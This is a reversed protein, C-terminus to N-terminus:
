PTVTFRLRGILQGSATVVDVRYRGEYPPKLDTKRSYTRFGEKRGGRLPSLPVRGILQGDKWWVHEIPQRLGAPAYVATYAAVGGWGAVTSAPIPSDVPEVPELLTVSRAATAMAVFLPAPPVAARGVWVAAMAVVALVTSRAYAQRWTLAGRERFVPMMAVATLAAAGEVALIPRIGLLPLAVNLAAFISFALLAQNLWRRPHVVVAYWPDVATVLAGAVVGALFLANLSDLTASAYYAPLVFLLLGHYLSQIAYDAASLIRRRGRRELPQRLETVAAVLLVLLLLYGVIWGVHPLGRKFVFLTAFGLGLSFVSIGWRKLWDLRTRLAAPADTPPLTPSQPRPPM